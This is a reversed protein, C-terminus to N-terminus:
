WYIEKNNILSNRLFQNIEFPDEITELLDYVYKNYAPHGGDHIRRVTNIRKKGSKTPMFILNYGSDINYNYKLLNKHKKWELPIIHHVQVHGQLGFRHKYRIFDSRFINSFLVTIIKM